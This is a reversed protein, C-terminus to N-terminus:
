LCPAFPINTSGLGFHARCICVTNKYTHKNCIHQLAGEAVQEDPSACRQVADATGRPSGHHRIFETPRRSNVFASPFPPTRDIRTACCSLLSVLFTSTSSHAPPLSFYFSARPKPFSFRLRCRQGNRTKCHNADKRKACPQRVPSKISM